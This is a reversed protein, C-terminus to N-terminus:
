TLRKRYWLLSEFRWALQCIPDTCCNEYDGSHNDLHRQWAWTFLRSGFPYPWAPDSPIKEDRNYTERRWRCALWFRLSGLKGRVLYRRISNIM